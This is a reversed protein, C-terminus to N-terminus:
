LHKDLLHSMKEIIKLSAVNKRSTLPRDPGLAVCPGWLDVKHGAGTEVRDVEGHLLLESLRRYSDGGGCIGETGVCVQPRWETRPLAGPTM